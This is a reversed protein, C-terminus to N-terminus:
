DECCSQSASVTVAEIKKLHPWHCVVIHNEQSSATPPLISSMLATIGLKFEVTM